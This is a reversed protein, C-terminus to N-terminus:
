ILMSRPFCAGSQSLGSQLQVSGTVAGAGVIGLVCGSALVLDGLFFPTVDAGSFSRQAQVVFGVFIVFHLLLVAVQYALSLWFRHPRWPLVGGLRLALGKVSGLTARVARGVQRLPGQSSGQALIGDLSASVRQSIIEGEVRRRIEDLSGKGLRGPTPSRPHALGSPPSAQDPKGGWADQWAVRSTARGPQNTPTVGAGPVGPCVVDQPVPQAAAEPPVNAPAPSGESQAAQSPVIPHLAQEAPLEPPPVPPPGLAARSRRFSGRVRPDAPAREPEGWREKVEPSGQRLIGRRVAEEFGQLGGRGIDIEASSGLSMPTPVESLGSKGACSTLFPCCLVATCVLGGTHGKGKCLISLRWSPRKTDACPPHKVGWALSM